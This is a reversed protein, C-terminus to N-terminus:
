KKGREVAELRAETSVIYARLVELVPGLGTALVAVSKRRSDIENLLAVHPPVRQVREISM